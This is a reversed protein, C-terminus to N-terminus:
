VSNIPERCTHRKHGVGKCRGCKQHKVPGTQETEMRTQIRRKKPRGPPCRTSPPLVNDTSDTSDSDNKVDDDDDDSHSRPRVYELPAAFDITHPHIITGAYSQAFYEVTFYCKVYDNIDKKQGLLIALAHACPFGKRILIQCLLSPPTGQNAM